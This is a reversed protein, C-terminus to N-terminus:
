AAQAPAAEEDLFLLLGCVVMLAQTANRQTFQRSSVGHVSAHLSFTRPIPDGGELRFKQYAQWMPTIAMFERVTFNDYEASTPSKRNSTLSYRKSGSSGNVVADLV